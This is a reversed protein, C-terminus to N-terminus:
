TLSEAPSKIYNIQQYRVRAPRPTPGSSRNGGGVLWITQSTDVTLNM